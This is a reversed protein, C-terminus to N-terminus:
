NTKIPLGFGNQFAPDRGIFAGGFIASGSFLGVLFAKQVFLYQM